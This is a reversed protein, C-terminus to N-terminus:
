QKCVGRMRQGVNGTGSHKIVNSLGDEDTHYETPKVHRHRNPELGPPPETNRQPESPPRDEM